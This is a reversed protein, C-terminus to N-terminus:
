KKKWVAYLKVTKGTTTLNKVSKKNKYAVKGKKALAKSKAWGKFTYGKRKFKNASLKKAKGYTMKEAAMKGKGGNAVFQVKYAKKAWKAYLTVSKGAAALNKVSQADKYAVAGGKSKAWGLFVYDKRTFANKTLATTKGYTLTQAAMKGKGGNASFAVMFTTPTWQAYLTATKGAEALNRVTAKDKFAVAGNASRAWGAFVHGTRTFRNAALAASADRAVTQETMTGTGGNSNFTVIYSSAKASYFVITCDSSISLTGTNGEFRSPLYLTKLGSCGSFAHHGISTVSDPITVSTLGSCGSFAEEGISTVGNGIMASVLNTCNEFAWDWISTVTDPITFCLNTASSFQRVWKPDATVSALGSCGSFASAGISTVTDPITVSALGRCGYFVSAGISTVSDPITVSTLGSCGRFAGRGIITVSDPITVFSLGRCGSFAEHWISTVSGPITVSSLGICGSFAEFGISTVSGPITVSELGSCDFFAAGEIVTVSGPITVSALGSCGYFAAEGISTVSDPITVSELSSCDSFAGAEINTVSDPITVFTLGSCGGFASNGISTVSDPITMSLLGSCGCFAGYAISTVSDPITVSALNTCLMFACDGIGRIGSLDLHGSLSTLYDVAWGDVLKVGPITASDYLSSKCGYFACEGINTVSDPITLSTLGRCNMFAEGGISTVPYGDLTSPITIAGTTSKPVATSSSSGGGVSAEGDSITYTWEIGDVTETDAFAHSALLLAALPFLLFRKM